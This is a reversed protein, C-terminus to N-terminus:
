QRVRDRSSRVLQYLVAMAIVLLIGSILHGPIVTLPTVMAIVVVLASVVGAALLISWEVFNLSEVISNQSTILLSGLVAVLGLPVLLLLGVTGTPPKTAVMAVLCVIAAGVCLVAIKEPRVVAIIASAVTILALLTNFVSGNATALSALVVGLLLLVGGAVKVPSISM